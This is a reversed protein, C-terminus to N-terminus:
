KEDCDEIIEIKGDYHEKILQDKKNKYVIYSKHVKADIMARKGTMKFYDKIEEVDIGKL